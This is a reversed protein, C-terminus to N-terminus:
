STLFPLFDLRLFSLAGANPYMKLVRLFLPRLFGPPEGCFRPTQTRTRVCVGFFGFEANRLTALTRSVLPM